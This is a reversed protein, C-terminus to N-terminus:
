MMVAGRSDALQQKSLAAQRFRKHRISACVYPRSIVMPHCCKRADCHLAQVANSVALM